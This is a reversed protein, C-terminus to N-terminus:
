KIENRKIIIERERWMRGLMLKVEEIREKEFLFKGIRDIEEGDTFLSRDRKSELKECRLLFHGLDEKEGKNCIKCDTNEKYHRRLDEMGLVNARAKFM